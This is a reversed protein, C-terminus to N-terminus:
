DLNLGHNAFFELAAKHTYEARLGPWTAMADPTENKELCGLMASVTEDPTAEWAALAQRFSLLDVDNGSAPSYVSRAVEFGNAENLKQVVDSSVPIWHAEEIELLSPVMPRPGDAPTSILNWTTADVTGRDIAATLDNPKMDVIEVDGLLGWGDRLLAETYVRVASPRPPAGIRKGKLDAPSRIAEDFALVGFAVDYLSAVFKLDTYPRGYSHWAPGQHHIAPLFDITTVIP